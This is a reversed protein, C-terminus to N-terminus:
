GSSEPIRKAASLSNRLEWAATIIGVTSIAATETRLISSGLSARVFGQTIAMDEETAQFGGEPGILLSFVDCKSDLVLSLIPPASEHTSLVLSMGSKTRQNLFDPLSKPDCLRPIASRGSQAIASHVIKLWRDKVHPPRRNSRESIIPVFASAGLETCHRLLQEMPDPRVCSIGLEVYPGDHEVQELDIIKGFLHRKNDFSLEITYRFTGDIACVIDGARKRLVKLLHESNGSDIIVSKHKVQDPFIVIRPPKM